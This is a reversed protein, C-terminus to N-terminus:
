PCRGQCGPFATLIKARLAITRLDFVTQIVAGNQNERMDFMTQMFAGNQFIQNEVCVSRLKHLHAM